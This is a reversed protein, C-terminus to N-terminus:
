VAQHNFFISEAHVRIAQRLWAKKTFDKYFTSSPQLYSFDKRLSISIPETQESSQDSSVSEDVNCLLCDYTSSAGLFSM